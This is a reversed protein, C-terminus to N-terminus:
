RDSPGWAIHTIVVIPVLLEHGEPLRVVLHDGAHAVLTCRVGNPRLTTGLEVTRLPDTQQHFDYQQLVAQFTPPNDSASAESTDSGTRPIIEICLQPGSAGEVPLKVHREPETPGPPRLVVYDRGLAVIRGTLPLAGTQHMRVEDGRDM